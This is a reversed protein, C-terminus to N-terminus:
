FIATALIPYLLTYFLEFISLKPKRKKRKREREKM